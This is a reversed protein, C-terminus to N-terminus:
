SDTGGMCAQGTDMEVTIACYDRLLLVMPSVPIRHGRLDQFCRPPSAQGPFISKEPLSAQRQRLSFHKKRPKGRKSTVESIVVHIEEINPVTKKPHQFPRNYVTHYPVIEESATKGGHILFNTMAAETFKLARDGLFLEHRKWPPM